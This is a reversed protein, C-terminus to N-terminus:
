EIAGAEQLIRLCDKFVADMDRSADVIKIREPDERALTLYGERVKEHFKLSESDFRGESIVLGDEMNRRGARELGIRPPLDLLITINPMLGGTALNNLCHLSQLDEGRGYGQYALTSDTYRDCLALRGEELAPLIVEEVHQARDAMFLYLESKHSLSASRADLLISRLRRGLSSGGPERTLLADQGREEFYEALKKILSTKGSGDMGEVSVFM